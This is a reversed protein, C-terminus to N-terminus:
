FTLRLEAGFYIDSNLRNGAANPRARDTLMAKSNTFNNAYFSIAAIKGLEKTVRINAMFYPQYSEMAFYYSMSSANRMNALRLKLDPDTTTYYDSFPRVNGDFDMYAVPDRYLVKDTSKKSYDEYVRNGEGDMYYVSGQEFNRWSRNMWICQATLSVVMRIKPINTVFNINTSLRDRTKGNSLPEISGAFISIYPYVESADLPDSGGIYQNVYGESSDNKKLYMGNVIVSTHIAKIKGFDIEYEIGWKSQKGRNDPALHLIYENANKGPAEVYEGEKNKIWVKGDEFKPAANQDTVTHYYKISVPEFVANDTIGNKLYENFYTLGVKTGGLNLDIGVEVNRTKAPQMNYPLKNPLIRTDIVALSEGTESNNYQFVPKDLYVAGPYLLSMAPLKQMIGWGGRISFERLFEKRRNKIINYQANLRPEAVPHYTYGEILMKTFRLGAQVELSTNSIPITVKEELFASFNHMFPTERYTHQRFFQPQFGQYYVGEGLNGKSNWEVGLLTRFFTGALKKNLNGSLKASVYVPDDDVRQDKHIDVDTFYGEHVGEERINTTPYFHGASVTYERIANHAYSASVNYNLSSIWSQNLMWNGYLSLMINRNRENRFDDKAVDPDSKQNNSVFGGTLRANFRFPTKDQNFTNSYTVGFNTRDFTQVPSRLDNTARAYDMDINMYGGNKSLRFGKNASVAKTKPDTKFRVEFPTRGAKTTIMVAGSTMDGYEASVVGKLVQVSEINGTSYNRFDVMPVSIMGPKTIGAMGADGSIPSGNILFGVGRSNNSYFDDGMSRIQIRNPENLTPNKIVGGPLLQMVDAISSAQVHEIAKKGIQSSSNITGGDEATVVIEDLTLNDEKMRITMTKIDKSVKIPIEYKAYGLATAQLTYSGSFVGSIKFNGEEDTFGWQGIEKIQVQAFPIAEASNKLVVKGEITYRRNSQAFSLPIIWCFLLTFLFLKKM